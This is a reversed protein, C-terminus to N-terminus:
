LANRRAIQGLHSASPKPTRKCTTRDVAIVATELRVPGLLGSVRLPADPEYTPIVTFTYKKKVGPQEDGILRDVWLNTVAIALENRGPRVDKTIDIRFPPTWLIGAEKGNVTVRALERVKGLDLVVRCGQAQPPLQFTKTYTATGSFYRVGRVSSVAWSALHPMVIAAPAGRDPQFSLNWPGELTLLTRRQPAPVDLSDGQAPKRFVVFASGYPVLHLPVSTRGDAIKFSVPRVSGTVADWLEPARGAVRFSARVSEVRDKPNTVFYLDGSTLRRHVYHLETHPQPRSYEFDPQLGLAELAKSLSGAPFVKGRGVQRVATSGPPGFVKEAFMQFKAPDDRLSPSGVPRRGVVTAGQRVLEDIRRLVDLTMWRSSGGLYLIRYRMGSHTVLRGGEVSLQHTLVDSNVFDFGYGSPVDISKDFFLGTLPAEEGYFYAIDAVYRGQQLLYSCRAIYRLWPGAEGAWTDLRNFAQGFYALTLGPPEDLPQEASEHIVVRNVGLAFEEDVVPKLQRPAFAWPQDRSDLSEAGVLNQGYIHAVSAAGRIDAVYSPFPKGGARYMWMAGMPIDTYRRMEMDDGFTPRGNELAEGYVKLGRAHAVRAIEGYHNRALLENITRRFDWLFKDSQAPSAVVVGTLAPLWPLPDYGRLKRFDALIKPTWNQMGVETSDNTFSTLSNPGFPGTVAQFLNLYHEMYAKVDRRSLKDVELGTAAPPAPHNTAGELSYGMRLVVWRGPPPTWDLAGDPRMRGTLNVVEHPSVATGPAAPARSTIAYYDPVIRFYAKAEFQNVTARAHLVLEHLQFAPPARAHSEFAAFMAEVPIAGPAHRASFGGPIRLAVARLAVRVYRVTVPAFSITSQPFAGSYAPIQAIRRWTRGGTSGYLTAAARYRGWASAAMTAGQLRVPAAYRVQVWAEKGHAALTLGETLNGDSLQSLARADLAGTSSTARVPRPDLVPAKYAIVVSDRYFRLATFPSPGTMGASPPEDQFPGTTSPPQPLVGHFPRGGTVVTRSWVLKKMAQDPKVWPGGTESWGPSSDVSLGMAYRTALHAAYRFADKWGPSMYTLQPKAVQPTGVSVDIVDAGGIGVSHMWRLDKAIGTQSVNGGLWHWWVRPRASQPPSRFSGQLSSTARDVPHAAQAAPTVATNALLVAALCALSLIRASM